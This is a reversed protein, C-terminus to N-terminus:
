NFKSILWVGIAFGVPLLLAFRITAGIQKREAQDFETIKKGKQVARREALRKLMFYEFTVMAVGIGAGILAGLVAPHLNGMRAM